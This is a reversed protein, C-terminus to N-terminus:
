DWEIGEGERVTGRMVGRDSVFEGQGESTMDWENGEEESRGSCNRGDSIRIELREEGEIKGKM